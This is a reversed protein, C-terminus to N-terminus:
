KEIRLLRGNLSDAIWLAGDPGVAVGHPEKLATAGASSGAPGEGKQGTGAVTTLTEARPSYRRICHNNSDAVLVDGSPEIWLFKSGNLTCKLAPGDSAPGAQGTGAVTRIRGQGDVVRLANGSRELIWIRGQADRAVARPDVLPSEAALAGDDPVGQKGNGAVTRIVGDAVARIRRNGLDALLFGDPAAVVHYAQNIRADRAPGGDGAFGERPGGAETTVQRTRGDIRRVAHNSTDSVLLDGDALVVVNHPQNFRAKDGPGDRYGQQGDGALVEVAGGTTVRCIRHGGFDAVVLSGDPLFDLGFPITLTPHDDVVVVVQEDAGAPGALLMAVVVLWAYRM